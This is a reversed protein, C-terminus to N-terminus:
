QARKKPSLESKEFLLDHLGSLQMDEALGDTQFFKTLNNLCAQLMISGEDQQMWIREDPLDPDLLSQQKATIRKKQM